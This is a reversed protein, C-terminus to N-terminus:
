CLIKRYLIIIERLIGGRGEEICRWFICGIFFVWSQSVKVCVVQMSYEVQVERWLSWGTQFVFYDLLFLKIVLFLSCVSYMIVLVVFISFKGYFIYLKKFIDLQLFNFNGFLLIVVLRWGFVGGWWEGFCLGMRLLDLSLRLFCGEGKVWEEQKGSKFVYFM